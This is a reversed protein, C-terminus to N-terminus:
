EARMAVLPDVRSARRAPVYSAIIAALALVLPVLAFTFPDTAKVGYLLTSLVRTLALAGALGIAVGILALRAGYGVVLVLVSRQTAGLAMRVGVERTRQTVSYSIVGYIGVTALLLALAAFVGLVQGQLRQRWLSRDVAEELTQIQFAPVDRDLERLAARVTPLLTHPDDLSTRLVITQSYSPRGHYPYYVAPGMEVPLRYHRYDGVVGVITVWPDVGVVGGTIRRGIPDEGPFEDRAFKENILAVPALSDRDAPTLWRGRVLPVGIAKFYDPSVTQFHIDLEQGRPRPPRGEISMYSMVDWGSFPIGQASGVAEVGPLARMREFLRDFFDIRKARDEYKGAPLALRMSLIGDQDFGLPTEHLSQYSRILLTASIMLVLSLAVEGVVLASRVRSRATGEGAGRAGDKLADSLAVDTSRLAPVVGFLLGTVATLAVAFALAFGDVGLDIYFPVDDPFALSLLRVAFVSLVAGLAGGIAALLLSETLLQRVLRRRGAGIAVRIAIERQRTAGRALLLNAVNACAILLVLAVAGMFVLLPRRLDGVLDDRLEVAEADWGFNAEPDERQLVASIRDLDAQAQAVTVGPKLRGIGGAWYRNSRDLASEQLTLPVWVQGREPFAFGRPMVGIVTYPIGDALVSKGVINRDGGFRRQWVGYGLIVVRNQGQQEDGAAITRGLIPHVGLVQFLTSSVEAGDLRESDGEGSLSLTTWTWMGIEAFTQNQERWSVYDPYSINVGTAGRATNRAYIAVLEEAREYPLPRLLISNVWSFITTTLAVGLAVCLIALAAFGPNNSLTRAAFRLDQRLDTMIEGREARRGRREDITLCEDRIARMEGFQREAEGRAAAESMGAAVLDATRMELHFRLEDDVDGHVDARWFHLYRRWAPVPAM